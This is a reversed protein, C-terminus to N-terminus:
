PPIQTLSVFRQRAPSMHSSAGSDYVNVELESLPSGNCSLTAGAFTTTFAFVEGEAAINSSDKGKKSNNERKGKWGKKKTKSRCEAQIHGKYGCKWCEVDSKNDGSNGKKNRSKGHGGTAVLANEAAKLQREEITLRDFEDLLSEIVKAPELTVKTHMASMTIANILPRYSKPLSGLIVTILDTDTLRGGMGDLQEQMRSLSELHTRVQTEDECKMEYMRCRLDVKVTLSKNEYKACVTDWIEKATNLKQIEILLSDPITTFIQVKVTAERQNYDDWRKEAKELCDEEDETLPRNSPVTPMKPLERATGEIHRTVGWGVALTALTQSKWTIWNSGDHALKSVAYSKGATISTTPNSPGM